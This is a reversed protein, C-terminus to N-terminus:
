FRYGVTMRFGVDGLNLDFLGAAGEQRYAGYFGSFIETGIVFRAHYARLGATVLGTGFFSRTDSGQGLASSQEEPSSGRRVTTISSDRVGSAYGAQAEVGLTVHLHRWFYREIEIGALGYYVRESIGSRIFLATDASVPVAQERVDRGGSGIGVGLRRWLQPDRASARRYIFGASTSFGEYSSTPGGGSSFLSIDSRREPAPRHLNVSDQAFAPFSAALSFFALLRKM